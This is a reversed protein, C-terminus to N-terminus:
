LMELVNNFHIFLLTGVFSMTYLLTVIVPFNSFRELNTVKYSIMENIKNEQLKDVTENLKRLKTTDLGVTTFQYIVGMIQNAEQSGVYNAFEIYPRQTKDIEIAAVMEQVATKLPEDTYKISEVFTQYVNGNTELINLFNKLYTPFMYGRMIEDRKKNAMMQQYPYKYGILFGGLPMVLYLLAEGFLISFIGLVIGLLVGQKIRYFRFEKPDYKFYNLYLEKNKELLLEM